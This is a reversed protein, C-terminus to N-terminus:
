RGPLPLRDAVSATCTISALFGCVLFISTPSTRSVSIKIRAFVLSLSLSISVRLHGVVSSVFIGIVGSTM